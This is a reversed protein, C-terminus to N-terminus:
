ACDCDHRHCHCRTCRKEAVDAALVLLDLGVFVAGTFWALIALAWFVEM